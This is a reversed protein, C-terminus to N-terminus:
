SARANLASQLKPSDSQSFRSDNPQNCPRFYILLCNTLTEVDPMDHPLFLVVSTCSGTSWNTLSILSSLSFIAVTLTAWIHQCTSNVKQVTAVWFIVPSSLDEWVCIKVVETGINFPRFIKSSKLGNNIWLFICVQLSQFALELIFSIKSLM